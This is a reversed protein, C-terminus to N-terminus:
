IHGGASTSRLCSSALGGVIQRVCLQLVNILSPLAAGKFDAPKLWAPEIGAEPVVAGLRVENNPTDALVIHQGGIM